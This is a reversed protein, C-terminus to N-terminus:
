EIVPCAEYVVWYDQNFVASDGRDMGAGDGCTRGGIAVLDEVIGVGRQSGSEEVYVDVAGGAVIHHFGRRFGQLRDAAQKRRVSCAAVEGCCDCRRYICRQM